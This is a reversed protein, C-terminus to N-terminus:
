ELIPGAAWNKLSTWGVRAPVMATAQRAISVRKQTYVHGHTHLRLSRHHHQYKARGSLLLESNPATRLLWLQLIYFMAYLM